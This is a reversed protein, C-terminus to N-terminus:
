KLINRLKDYGASKTEILGSKEMADLSFLIHSKHPYSNANCPLDQVAQLAQHITGGQWHLHICLFDLVTLKQM